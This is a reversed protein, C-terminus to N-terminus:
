VTLGEFGARDAFAGAALAVSGAPLPPSLRAPASAQGLPAPLVPSAAPAPASTTPAASAGTARGARIGDRLVRPVVWALSVVLLVGVVLLVRRDPRLTKPRDIMAPAM